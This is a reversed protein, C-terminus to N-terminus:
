NGLLVAHDDTVNHEYTQVMSKYGFSVRIWSPQRRAM